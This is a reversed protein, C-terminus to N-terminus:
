WKDMPDYEFKSFMPASSFGRDIAPAVDQAYTLALADAIDPSGTGDGLRKKMDDKEELHIQGTKTIGYERSTLQTRLDDAHADGPAPLCLRTTLHEKLKGWIEDGKRRYMQNDTARGGFQVEIPAYGLHRLQDVVGGGVGGGDVFLGAVTMGLTRFHNITEIVKGVLQVTDFGKFRKVPFSRADDGIRSAIVSDDDGFRAVDVGLVLAGDNRAPLSRRMADEVAYTPIFQVSGQGPFEGKVRVRVYDSDEGYDQILRDLYLKNSIAVTRSDISVSRIRHRLSGECEEYFEGSNRTPNGFDFTMPEGDTLGGGRVQYIKSPIASAEDFIYFSTSDAAHQGAFAESNEERCTQGTCFWKEPHEKHRLSMTQGSRYEFRDSCLSMKHWKGVEAWTKSRLQPATNATITGKCFPRTNMLFGTLWAVMVSKGIGHGSKVAHQIPEVAHSGDFGRARIDAGLQDLFECAWIDPGYECKFRARYQPALKVIQISSDTTWPYVSMVFKLPDAYCEGLLDDLDEDFTKPKLSKPRVTM